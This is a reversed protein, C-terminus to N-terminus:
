AAEKKLYCLMFCDLLSSIKPLYQPSNENNICQLMQQHNSEFQLTMEVSKMMMVGECNFFILKLM